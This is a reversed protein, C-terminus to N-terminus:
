VGTTIRAPHGLGAQRLFWSATYVKLLTYVESVGHSPHKGGLPLLVSRLAVDTQLLM